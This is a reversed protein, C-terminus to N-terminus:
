ALLPEFNLSKLEGSLAVPAGEGACPGEMQISLVNSSPDHMGLEGAKRWWGPFTAPALMGWATCAAAHATGTLAREGARPLPLGGM